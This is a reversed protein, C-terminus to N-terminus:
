KLKNSVDILAQQVARSIDQQDMNTTGQIQVTIDGFNVSNGGTSRTM